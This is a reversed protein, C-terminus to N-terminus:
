FLLLWSMIGGDFSLFNVNLKRKFSKFPLLQQTESTIEYFAFVGGKQFNIIPPGRRSFFQRRPKRLDVACVQSLRILVKTIRKNSLIVDLSPKFSSDIIYSCTTETSPPQKPLSRTLFGSFPTKMICYSRGPRFHLFSCLDGQTINM